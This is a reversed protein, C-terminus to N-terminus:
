QDMEKKQRQGNDRQAEEAEAGALAPLPLLLVLEDASVAPLDVREDCGIQQLTPLRHIADIRPAGRTRAKM